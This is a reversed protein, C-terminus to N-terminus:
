VSTSRGFTDSSLGAWTSRDPAPAYQIAVLLQSFLSELAFRQLNEKSGFYYCHLTKNIRAARAFEDTRASALGHEAFMREAVIRRVTAPNKAELLASPIKVGLRGPNCDAAGESLLHSRRVM